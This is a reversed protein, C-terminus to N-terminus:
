PYVHNLWKQKKGWKQSHFYALIDLSWVGKRWSASSIFTVCHLVSISPDNFSLFTTSNLTSPVKWEFHPTAARTLKERWRRHLRGINSTTFLLVPLYGHENPVSCTQVTFCSMALVLAKKISSFLSFNLKAHWNSLFKWWNTLQILFDHKEKRIILSLSRSGFSILHLYYSIRSLM